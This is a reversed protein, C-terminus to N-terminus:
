KVQRSAWSTPRASANAQEGFNFGGSFRWGMGATVATADHTNEGDLTAVFTAFFDGVHKIPTSFSVGARSYDADAAQDHSDFDFDTVWDQGDHTEQLTAFVSLGVSRGVFHGYELFLNSRDMGFSGVNEVIAYQYGAQLYSRPRGTGFARGLNVGLQVEQLGRGPATHGHEAYDTLPTSIGLFPTVSMRGSVANYRLTASGDQLSGHYSGDDLQPDEPAEGDYKSAIYFINGSLALRDLFGYEVNLNVTQSTIEGFDAGGLSTLHDGIDMYQYNMFLSGHGKEPTWAQGLAPAAVFTFLGLCLLALRTRSQM